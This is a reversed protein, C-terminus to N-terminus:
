PPSWVSYCIISPCCLVVWAIQFVKIICRLCSGPGPLQLVLLSLHEAPDSVQSFSLVIWPHSLWPLGQSCYGPSLTRFGLILNNLSLGQSHSSFIWRSDLVLFMFSLFIIFPLWYPYFFSFDCKLLRLSTITQYPLATWAIWGWSLLAKMMIELLIRISFRVFILVCHPSNFVWQVAVDPSNFHATFPETPTRDNTAYGLPWYQFWYQQFKENLGPPPSPTCGWWNWFYLVSPVPQYWTTTSGYLAAVQENPKVFLSSDCLTWCPSICLEACSSFYGCYGTCM